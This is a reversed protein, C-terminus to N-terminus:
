RVAHITMAGIKSLGRIWVMHCCTKRLSARLTVGRYRPNRGREVVARGSKRQRSFVRRRLTLRTVDVAVVLQDVRIAILAMLRVKSTRRIRVVDDRTEAMLALCTVGGSGPRGGREIM